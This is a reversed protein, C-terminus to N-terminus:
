AAIFHVPRGCYLCERARFCREREESYAQIAGIQMPEAPQKPLPFLPGCPPELPPPAFSALPRPVRVLPRWSQIGKEAEREKLRSYIRLALSVLEEFSPPENRSTLQDKMKDNFTQLFVGQLAYARWGTETAVTCFEIVFEAIGRNGQQFNLLRKVASGESVLHTFTKKLEVLFVDYPCFKIPRFIFFAQPAPLPDSLHHAPHM